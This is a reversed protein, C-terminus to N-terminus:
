GARSFSGMSNLNFRIRGEKTGGLSALGIAGGSGVLASAVATLGVASRETDSLLFDGTSREKKFNKLSGRLVVVKDINMDGIM